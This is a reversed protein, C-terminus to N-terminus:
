LDHESRHLRQLHAGSVSLLRSGRAVGQFTYTRATGLNDTLTTTNGSYSLTSTDVNGALASATAMGTTNDYAWTAYTGGSEDVWATMAQPFATNEYKYGISSGDAYTVSTLRGDAEYGYQVATGDPLTLQSLSGFVNYAFALTRGSSDTVSQITAVDTNSSTNYTLTQMYGDRSVIKQLNGNFDYSEVDGNEATLTYGASSTVLTIKSQGFSTCVGQRCSFQYYNGDPRFVTAGVSADLIIGVFLDATGTNLVPVSGGNSLQCRGDVYSGTVGAYAPNAANAGRDNALDAVGLVCAQEASAYVGSSAAYHIASRSSKRGADLSTIHRASYANWWGSARRDPNLPNSNYYRDFRLRGDGSVFDTASESMNGTGIEIPHATAQRGQDCTCEGNGAPDEPVAVYYGRACDWTNYDKLYSWKAANDCSYVLYSAVIFAGLMHCDSYAVMQRQYRHAAPNYATNPASMTQWGTPSCKDRGYPYGSYVAGFDYTMAAGESWMVRNDPDIVNNGLHVANWDQASVSGLLSLLLLLAVTIGYKM